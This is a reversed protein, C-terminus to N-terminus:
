TEKQLHKWAKEEREDLWKKALAQESALYTYLGRVEEKEFLKERLLERIFDQLSEYGFEQSYEKAKTHLKPSLQLSIQTSM